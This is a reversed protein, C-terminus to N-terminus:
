QVEDPRRVATVVLYSTQTTTTRYQLRYDKYWTYNAKDFVFTKWNATSTMTASSDLLNWNAGSRGYMYVKGGITGTVLTVSADISALGSGVSLLDTNTTDTNVTTDKTIKTEVVPGKDRVWNQAQTKGCMLTLTAILLFSLFKKM